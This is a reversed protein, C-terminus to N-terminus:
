FSTSKIFKALVRSVHKHLGNMTNLLYYLVRKDFSVEEAIQEALTSKGSKTKGALLTLGAPLWRHIQPKHITPKSLLDAISRGIQPKSHPDKIM